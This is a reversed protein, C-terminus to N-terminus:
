RAVGETDIGRFTMGLVQRLAPKLGEDELLVSEVRARGLRRYCAAATEVAASRVAPTTARPCLCSVVAASPSPSTHSGFRM